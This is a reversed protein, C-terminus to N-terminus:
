RTKKKKLTLAAKMYGSLYNPHLCVKNPLAKFEVGSLYDNYGIDELDEETLIELKGLLEQNGHNFFGERYANQKIIDSYKSDNYPIASIRDTSGEKIIEGPKCGLKRNREEKKTLAKDRAEDSMWKYSHLASITKRDIKNIKGKREETSSQEYM